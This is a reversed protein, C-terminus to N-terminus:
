NFLSYLIWSSYEFNTGSQGKDNRHEDFRNTLQRCQKSYTIKQCLWWSWCHNGFSYKLAFGYLYGWNSVLKSINSASIELSDSIYKWCDSEIYMSLSNMKFTAKELFPKHFYLSRRNKMLKKELNKSLAQSQSPTSIQIWIWSIM